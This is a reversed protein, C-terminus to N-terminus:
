RKIISPVAVPTSKAAPKTTPKQGTSPELAIGVAKEVATVRAIKGENFSARIQRGRVYNITPPGKTRSESALQYFSRANGTATIRKPITRRSTDGAPKTFEAVISDARMWDRETSVVHATDAISNLYADRIARVEKLTQNELIADISDALMERDPSIAHARKGGWAYLREIQNAKVRMDISDAVLEFDESLMHGNPTALVRELQRKSSFLDIVDSTLTFPRDRTSRVRPSLMLRAFEKESDLYASDSHAELATRNIDVKGSAYVISDGETVITNADVITPEGQKGTTDRELLQMRPRGTAVLRAVTRTGIARYYDANPGRMVSGNSLVTVVDGEAYLRNESQYYTMRRSDVNARPERYHVNGILIVQNIDGYSEASDARLQNKQGECSAIVGGGIFSNYNGSPLKSLTVRTSPTNTFVMDCRQPIDQASVRSVPVALAAFLVWGRRM